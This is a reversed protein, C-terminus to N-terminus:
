VVMGYFITWRIEVSCFSQAQRPLLRTESRLIPLAVGSKAIKNILVLGKISVIVSLAFRISQDVSLASTIKCIM